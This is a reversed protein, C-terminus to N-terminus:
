DDAPGCLAVDQKTPEFYANWAEIFANFRTEAEQQLTRNFENFAANINAIDISVQPSFFYAELRRKERRRYPGRIKMKPYLRPHRPLKGWDVDKLKKNPNYLRKGSM